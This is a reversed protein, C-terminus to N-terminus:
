ALQRQSWASQRLLEHRFTAFSGPNPFARRPIILVGQPDFPLYLNEDDEEFPQCASWFILRRYRPSHIRIGEDELTVSRVGTAELSHKDEPQLALILAGVALWFFFAPTQWAGLGASLAAAAVLWWWKSASQPRTREVREHWAAIDDERLSYTITMRTLINKCSERWLPSFKGRRKDGGGSLGLGATGM